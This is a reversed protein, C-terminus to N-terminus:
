SGGLHEQRLRRLTALNAELAEVRALAAERVTLEGVDERRRIRALEADISRDAAKVAEWYTEHTDNDNPLKRKM